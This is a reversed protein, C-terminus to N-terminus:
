RWRESSNDVNTSQSFNDDTVNGYGRRNDCINVERRKNLIKRWKTTRFLCYKVNYINLRLGYRRNDDANSILFFILTVKTFTMTHDYMRLRHRLIEHMTTM